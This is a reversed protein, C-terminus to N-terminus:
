QAPDPEPLLDAVALAIGPPDLRLTEGEGLLVTAIPGEAGDRRFHIVRRTDTMVVLYHRVSAVAFYGELKKVRDIKASSPSVVEVVVLPDPVLLTDGSLPPGCRLLADPQFTNEAAFAVQPGDVYARCGLHRSADGLARYARGKAEAHVLREPAMMVPRGDVLEYQADDPQEQHWLLFKDVTMRPLDDFRQAESM